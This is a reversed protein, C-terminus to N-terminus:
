FTDISYLAIREQDTKVGGVSRPTCMDLKAHNIMTRLHTDYAALKPTM